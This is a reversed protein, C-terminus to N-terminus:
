LKRSEMSVVCDLRVRWYEATGGQSPKRYFIMWEGEERWLDADVERQDQGFKLELRFKYDAM